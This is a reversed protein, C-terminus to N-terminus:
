KWDMKSVPLIQFRQIAFFLIFCFYHMFCFLAYSTFRREHEEVEETVSNAIVELVEANICSLISHRKPFTRMVDALIQFNQGGGEGVDAVTLNHFGGGKSVDSKGLVGSGRLYFFLCLGKIIQVLSSMNRLFICFGAMM